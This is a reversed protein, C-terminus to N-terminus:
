GALPLSVTQKATMAIKWVAGALERAIAVVIKQTSKGRARMRKVQTFLREEANRVQQVIPAPLQLRAERIRYQEVPRRARLYNHAAEVLLYRAYGNGARTIHGRRIETGSSRESPVLGVSAMCKHAGPFREFPALEYVLTAATIVGVGRLGLLADIIAQYPSSGVAEAIHRDLRTCRTQAEDVMVKLEDFANQQHPDQFKLGRLWREYSKTWNKRVSSPPRTNDRLLFHFLRQKCRRMDESAAHRVRILDRVHEDAQSPVRVAQLDGSRLLRALKQADRRDTKVRDGHVRPMLLPAVVQCEIGAQQLRRQVGFGMPGAEYCCSLEDVPALRSLMQILKVEHYPISGVFRPEGRLPAVAVAISDKHVDLGVFTSYYSV